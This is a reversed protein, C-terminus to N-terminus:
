KKTILKKIAKEFEQSYGSCLLNENCIIRFWNKKPQVRVIYKTRNHYKRYTRVFFGKQFESEIHRFRLQKLIEEM